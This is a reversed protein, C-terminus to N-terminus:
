GECLERAVQSALRANAVILAQNAKLSRGATLEALRRLLSPTVEKGRIGAAAAEAEAHYLAGEWEEASLAVDEAIPQALIVGAGDAVDRDWHHRIILAATRPDDM